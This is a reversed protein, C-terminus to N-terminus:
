IDLRRYGTSDSAGGDRRGDFVSVVEGALHATYPQLAGRAGPVCLPSVDLWEAPRVDPGIYGRVNEAQTRVIVHPEVQPM